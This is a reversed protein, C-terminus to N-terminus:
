SKKRRKAEPENSQEKEQTASSNEKQEIQNDDQTKEEDLPIKQQAGYSRLYAPTLSLNSLYSLALNYTQHASNIMFLTAAYVPCYYFCNKYTYDAGLRAIIALRAETSSAQNLQKFLLSREIETYKNKVEAAQVGTLNLDTLPNKSCHLNHLAALGQLNLATLQNNDCDLTRLAALGQVNLATLQNNDCLLVHLAALGQVNLATLQNKQCYLVQLAALGQANLATLQNDVCYLQTLNQWFHAYSAAKSLTIPLRTIHAHNLNLKTSDRHSDIAINIHTTVIESNVADLLAHKAELSKLTVSTNQQLVIAHAPAAMRVAHHQTLYAIEQQQGAQMKEFTDKLFAFPTKDAQEAAAQLDAPLTKDIAFLRNYIPQLVMAQSGISYFLKCVQRFRALEDNDLLSAILDWVDTPLWSEIPHNVTNDSM